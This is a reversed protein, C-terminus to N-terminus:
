AVLLVFLAIQFFQQQSLHIKELSTPFKIYEAKLAAIAPSVRHVIRQASAESIGCFDDITQLFSGTAYFRLTVMRQIAPPIANNNNFIYFYLSIFKL